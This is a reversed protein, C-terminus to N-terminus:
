SQRTKVTEPDATKSTKSKKPQKAQLLIEDYIAEIQRSGADWSLTEVAHQRAQQGLDDALEPDQLVRLLQAALDETSGFRAYAARHGLMERNVPTDFAVIPLGMAMYNSIKGNGETNSMKPAVAVDGLALYSHLDKYLIRGPLTVRDAIGLSEAYNRYSGPDPYGMVLFHVDPVQPAIIKAADLLVNTGQYPALLGVYVVLRKDAPIGLQARLEQRQREWEPNGDFPRFRDTEVGDIVTHLRSVDISPDNHLLSAANHTSTIIADAQTNIFRELNVLPVYLPSQKKVFGHDLMESTMSGQYDLVLPVGTIRKLVAGILGAEHTHAHIITPKEALAVRLSRWSLGVDCYLKHRTSGVMVRKIWPVDWSRRIDIEPMDDGNHYTVLIVRHGLKQLSRIEQWIRVHCGYDAFFSTSAIMLITQM